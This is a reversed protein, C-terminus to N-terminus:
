RRVIPKVIPKGDKVVVQFDVAKGQHQARLKKEADRLSRALSDVSVADGQNLTKKAAVLEAHLARVRADSLGADNKPAAPAPAAGPSGARAAQAPAPRAVPPGAVPAAEPASATPSPGASRASGAGPLPLRAAPGPGAPAASAAIVAAPKSAAPGASTAVGLGNTLAPKPAVPAALAPSPKPAVPATPAPAAKTPAPAAKPAVPAAPAPGPKPAVPATPAPAAKPAVPAALAPGPKPAVPATQPPAANAAVPATPAPAAKTAVPAAKPKPAPAPEEDFDLDLPGLDELTFPGAPKSPLKAVTKEPRAASAGLSQVAEAAAREAERGLDTDGDLMAALDQDSATPAAAAPAGDEDGKKLMGLRKKAAWTKPEEGFNKQVKLLHRVYTGNEIERCIRQWYQQFTNYRQILVQMRFRRATNRIKVRRLIWFRRDVDKRAVTPEIKEIGLFYQEYLSRLRDLRSELEDLEVDLEQIEM